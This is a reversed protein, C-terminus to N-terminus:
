RYQVYEFAEERTDYKDSNDRQANVFTTVPLGDPNYTYENHINSVRAGEYTAYGTVPNGEFSRGYYIGQDKLYVDPLGNVAHWFNTGGTVPWEIPAYGEEAIGYPYYGINYLYRVNYVTLRSSDIFNALRGHTDYGGYYYQSYLQSTKIATIAQQAANYVIDVVYPGSGPGGGYTMSTCIDNKYQFYVRQTDPVSQGTGIRYSQVKDAEVVLHQDNYKFTYYLVSPGHVDPTYKTLLYHTPNSHDTPLTNSNDQKKCAAAFMILAAFLTIIRM